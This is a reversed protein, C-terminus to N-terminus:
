ISRDQSDQRLQGTGSAMDQSHQGTGSAMDQSHQGTGSAMDQSDQWPQGMGMRTTATRDKSDHGPMSDERDQQSQGTQATLMMATTM